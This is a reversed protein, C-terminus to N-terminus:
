PTVETDEHSFSSHLSIDGGNHRYVGLCKAQKALAILTPNDTGILRKTSFDKCERTITEWLSLAEAETGEFWEANVAMVDPTHLPPESTLIWIWDTNM